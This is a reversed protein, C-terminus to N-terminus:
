ASKEPTVTEHPQSSLDMLGRERGQSERPKRYPRPFAARKRPDMLELGLCAHTPNRNCDDLTPQRHVLDWERPGWGAPVLFRAVAARM